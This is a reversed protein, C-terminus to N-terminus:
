KSLEFNQTVAGSANVKVDVTKKGLTEHWIVLKYSGAPVGKITYKGGADTIAYYPNDRVVIWASMWKHVDCGIKIEESFTVKKSAPKGGKPISLNAPSNKLCYLHVNHLVPDSNALTLTSGVTTVSVHPLFVCGKQDLRTNQPTAKTPAKEIYVVANKIGDDAGVILEESPYEKTGCVHTDKTPKLMKPKPLTGKFKVTGSIDGAFVARALVIAIVFAVVFAVVRRM